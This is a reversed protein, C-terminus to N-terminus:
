VSRRSLRAVVTKLAETPSMQAARLSPVLGAIARTAIAAGGGPIVVDWNGTSM